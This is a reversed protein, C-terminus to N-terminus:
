NPKLYYNNNIKIKRVDEGKNWKGDKKYITMFSHSNDISNIIEERTWESGQGVSDDNDIHVRCKSIYKKNNM